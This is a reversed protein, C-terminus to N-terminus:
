YAGETKLVAFITKLMIYFDFLPSWNEIYYIDLKVMEDFPLQSRGSVQWLGTLGPLTELRRMEWDDYEKVESPIPPRPGVLSMEGRLVNIIQPLEDISYKRMFKGVRTIRPDNKIKFIKGEAENMHRLEALRSEADQYMTRFKYMMFPRGKRGVRKQQFLVPGKSDLKIILGILLTLPLLFVLGITTFILDFFRKAALKAGKFETQEISILPMGAVPQINIRSSIINILSPSIFISVNRKNLFRCIDQMLKSSLDSAVLVAAQIDDTQEFIQEIDDAKGLMVANKAVKSNKGAFGVVKLGLWPSGQIKNFIHAAEDNSGIIITKRTNLGKANQKHKIKRLIYRSLLMLATITIWSLIVWGRAYEKKLFFSVVLILVMGLSSTHIIRIYEESGIDLINSNYLKYVFNMGLWLPLVVLSLKVYSSINPPGYGYPIFSSEFRLWFAFVISFLIVGSDVMILSLKELIATRQM